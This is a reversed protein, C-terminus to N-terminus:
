RPRIQWWGDGATWHYFSQRDYRCLFYYHHYRHFQLNFLAQGTVCLFGHARGSSDNTSRRAHMSSSSTETHPLLPVTSSGTPYPHAFHHWAARRARASSIILLCVAPAPGIDDPLARSGDHRPGLTPVPRSCARDPVWPNSGEQWGSATPSCWDYMCRSIPIMDIVFFDRRRKREFSSWILM